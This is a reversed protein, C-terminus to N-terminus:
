LKILIFVITATILIGFGDHWHVLWIFVNGDLNHEEQVNWRQEVPITM